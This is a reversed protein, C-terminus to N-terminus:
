AHPDQNPKSGRRSRVPRKVKLDAATVLGRSELESGMRNWFSWKRNAYIATSILIIPLSSEIVTSSVLEMIKIYEGSYVRDAHFGRIWATFIRFPSVQTRDSVVHILYLKFVIPVFIAAAMVYLFRAMRKRILVRSKRLVSLDRPDLAIGPGDLPEALLHKMRLKRLGDRKFGSAFSGVAGAAVLIMVGNTLYELAVLKTGPYDADWNIGSVWFTLLDLFNMGLAVARSGAVWILSLGTVAIACATWYAISARTAISRVSISTLYQRDGDTLM